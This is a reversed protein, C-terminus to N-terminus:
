AYVFELRHNGLWPITPHDKDFQAERLIPNHSRRDFYVVIRRQSEIEVAGSTEVFKRYLAKPKAQDFGHLQSALWRYCGNALVTLVADLDVNLRVESSLCDLHFFNVSSGLADEMGNRRAYNMILQRATAEDNNTLFLTPNERGLGRVAIQRVEGEYEPMRIREDVYEIHQYRRKPIDIVAKKWAATPLNALRKLLTSGRRRITVFWIQQKNLLNLEKYTTLKSDFYLWQPNKGMLQRWFEVFRLIEGSQRERTLNANAYCFVRSKQEMVFFTLIAPTAKGRRPQYHNELDTEEGRHGAAHFDLSFSDAEPFLLPSIQKVWEQLLKEQHGRVTRYSYDTAFSKKPLINLGAFLGLAEDCNFDDIHSLREKDLLKLILLSMLAHAAPVMKTGPYGAREVIQDFRLRSLLPLFLFVGAHRTILRRGTELSLAQVDAIAIQCDGNNAALTPRGRAPTAFLPPAPGCEPLPSVRQGL